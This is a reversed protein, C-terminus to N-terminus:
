GDRHTGLTGGLHWAYRRRRFFGSPNSHAKPCLSHVLLKRASGLLARLVPRDQPWGICKERCDRFKTDIMLFRKKRVMLGVTQPAEVQSVGPLGRPATPTPTRPCRTLLLGALPNKSTAAPEALPDIAAPHRPAACVGGADPPVADAFLRRALSQDAPSPRLPTDELDAYLTLLAAVFAAEDGQPSTM